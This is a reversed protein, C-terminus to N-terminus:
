ADAREGGQARKRWEVFNPGDDDPLKPGKDSQKAVGLHYTGITKLADLRQDFPMERGPGSLIEDLLQNAVKALKDAIESQDTM